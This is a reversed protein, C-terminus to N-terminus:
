PTAECSGILAARCRQLLETLEVGRPRHLIALNIDRVLQSVDPAPAANTTTLVQPSPGPGIAEFRGDEFEATARCWLSGDAESRYIVMEDHDALFYTPPSTQLSARGIEVYTTGRKKHRWRRATMSPPPPDPPLTKRWEELNAWMLAVTDGVPAAPAPETAIFQGCLDCCMRGSREHTTAAIGRRGFCQCAQEPAALLKGSGNCWTCLPWDPGGFRGMHRGSGSCHYCDEQGAREAM